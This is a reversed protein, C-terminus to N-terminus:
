KSYQQIRPLDTSAQRFDQYIAELFLARSKPSLSRYRALLGEVELEDLRADCAGLAQQVLSEQTRSLYAPRALLKTKLQHAESATLCHIEELVPMNLKMWTAAKKKRETSVTEYLGKYILDVDLIPANSVFGQKMEALCQHLRTVLADDTLSPDSLLESHKELLELQKQVQLLKEVDQQEGDYAAILENVQSRWYALRDLSDLQTIQSVAASRRDYDNLMARVDQQFRALKRRAESLDARRIQSSKEASQLRELFKERVQRDWARLTSVKTIASVTNAALFAEIDSALRAANEAEKTQQEMLSVHEALAQREASLGLREFNDMVQSLQFRFDPIDETKSLKQQPLWTPFHERIFTRCSDIQHQVERVQTTWSEDSLLEDRLEWLTVAASSVIDLDRQKKGQGIKDIEENLVRRFRALAQRAREAKDSLLRYKPSFQDPLPVRTQLHHAKERLELLGNITRELEWEELLREWQSLSDESVEVLETDALVSLDFFKKRMATELWKQVRIPAGAVVLNVENRRSGIFLAIILGASALNCGYPPSCLLDVTEGLNLAKASGTSAQRLRSELLEMIERLIGNRPKRALTGKSNLVGWSEVLVRHARNRQQCTLTSIYDKDFGGTILEKTFLQSDRAANGKVTGFGDFDFPLTKPYIAGFAQSLMNKLRSSPIASGTAFLVHRERELDAFTDCMAVKLAQQREPIFHQYKALDDEDMDNHLVWYEALTSGFKGDKDNLFVVAIPAGSEWKVNNNALNKKLLGYTHKKVSDLDSDPGVYCYILQGKPQDPEVAQRWADVASEIRGPLMEVTSLSITYRWDNTTIRNKEGFDTPQVDLGAWVKYNQAFIAARKTRDIEQVRTQLDALFARRPVADGVIEYRLTQENWELIALEGELLHLSREMANPSLGSFAALLVPFEKKSGVKTSLKSMLLVSKLVRIENHGLEHRHKELVAEYAHALAGQQGLRESSLFENILSDNCLDVPVITKGNEFVLDKSQDYVEALLSLASRQQLFRGVTSLKVLTWVTLPHLPWCGECVVRRFLERNNWLAHSQLERFWSKIREYVEANNERAFEMEKRIFVTDKRDLLNAILTEINTSLRARSVSGYRTVYRSLDDRLEPAVRSIYAQLEYQIFCVLMVADGNSQVCEFLQQLAGSGAIFPKQVSFELYRGFEDFLILLGAYPKGRGCYSDKTVRIFEHLSEQGVVPIPSGMQREYIESIAVFAAEDQVKLKAIIEDLPCPGFADVFDQRLKDYSLRAFNIAHQFRARLTQLATTDLGDHTIRRFIQRVIEGGLNFDKMGNITVVLFPKGINKLLASVNTGIASDARKLNDLIRTATLSEPESLLRSLTVALHSKGTGYGAIALMFPDDYTDGALRTVIDHTFSATDVLRHEADAVSNRPVGHYSPGHFVFHEAAKNALRVDEEVWGTQVAGNFLLDKRFSVANELIM